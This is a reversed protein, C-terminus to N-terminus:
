LLIHQPMNQFLILFYFILCYFYRITFCRCCFNMHIFLVKVVFEHLRKIKMKKKQMENLNHYLEPLNHCSKINEVIEKFSKVIELLLAFHFLDTVSFIEKSCNNNNFFTAAVIVGGSNKVVKSTLKIIAEAPISLPIYSTKVVVCTIVFFYKLSFKKM